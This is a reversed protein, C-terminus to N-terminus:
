AKNAQNVMVSRDIEHVYVLTRARTRAHRILRSQNSERRDFEFVQSANYSLRTASSVLTITVFRSQLYRRTPSTTKEKEIGRDLLLCRPCFVVPAGRQVRTREREREKDAKKYSMMVVSVFLLDRSQACSRREKEREEGGYSKSKTGCKFERASINFFSTRPDSPANILRGERPNERSWALFERERNAPSDTTRSEVM